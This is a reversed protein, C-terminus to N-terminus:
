AEGEWARCWGEIVPQSKLSPFKDRMDRAFAAKGKYRDPEKQWEDWCEKVIAKDKQKPNKAHMKIANLRARTSAADAVALELLYYISDEDLYKAVDAQLVHWETQFLRFFSDAKEKSKIQSKKTSELSEFLETQATEIIKADIGQKKLFVLFEDTAPQVGGFFEDVYTDILDLDYDIGEKQAQMCVRFHLDRCVLEHHKLFEKEDFPSTWSM